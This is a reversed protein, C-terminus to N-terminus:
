NVGIHNSINAPEDTWIVVDSEDDDDDDGVEDDSIVVSESTTSTRVAPRVIAVPASDPNSTFNSTSAANLIPASNSTSSNNPISKSRIISNAANPGDNGDDGSDSSSSSSSSSSTVSGLDIVVPDLLVGTITPEITLCVFSEDAAFRLERLIRDGNRISLIYIVNIQNRYM